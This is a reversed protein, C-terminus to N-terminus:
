PAASTRRDVSLRRPVVRRSGERQIMEFAARANEPGVSVHIPRDKGYFYLRDFPLNGIIWEAVERMDEDDVMFDCAAGQRPCILRGATSVECSAHQDLEPAIRGDIRKALQPSCFGYTLRIPGFYEIIPDVLERALLSLANFTEPRVPVNLTETRKMTEGCEIFSRYTFHAGCKADLHPISRAPIFSTGEIELRQHELAIRLRDATVGFEGQEFLRM